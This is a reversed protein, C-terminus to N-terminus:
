RGEQGLDDEGLDDVRAAHVLLPHGVLLLLVDGLVAAREQFDVAIRVLPGCPHLALPLLLFHPPSSVPPPSSSILLLPPSSLLPCSLLSLCSPSLLLSSLRSVPLCSSSSHPLPVELLPNSSLLQMSTSRGVRRSGCSTPM